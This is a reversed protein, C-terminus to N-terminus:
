GRRQRRAIGGLVALGLAMLVVSQPEPM